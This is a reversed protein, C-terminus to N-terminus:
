NLSDIFQYSKILYIQREKIIFGETGPLVIRVLAHWVTKIKDKHGSPEKIDDKTIEIGLEGLCSVIEDLSLLEFQFKLEGVRNYTTTLDM